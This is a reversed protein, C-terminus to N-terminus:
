SRLENKSNVLRTLYEQVGQPSGMVDSLIAFNDASMQLFMALEFIGGTVFYCAASIFAVLSLTGNTLDLWRRVQITPCFALLM